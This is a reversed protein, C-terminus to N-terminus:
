EAKTRFRIPQQAPQNKKEFYKKLIVSAVPAANRGGEFNEGLVDGEVAVAVAIEPKEVPAFCIFWAYNITGVQGDKLVRKQATGTKGAIRLGPIRVAGTPGMMQGATGFQVCGEMGKIIAARQEPQLGIPETHQPPRGPQHILTPQTFTEDRALSAVFCAMSLPTVVVAGQGIAMNATDGPYWPEGQVRRKWATSPILMRTTENPLEIGTPVDLHFRHAEAAIEDATTLEGAKYFYIDCSHAIADSLLILHHHGRGNECPKTTNGIRLKGDCDVIPRDISVANHHLAAISTLIKFTSGPPWPAAIANNYWAGTENL